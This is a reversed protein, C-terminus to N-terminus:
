DEDGNVPEPDWVVGGCNPCECSYRYENKFFHTRYENQDAEFVCGCAICTFIMRTDPIKGQKLIKM